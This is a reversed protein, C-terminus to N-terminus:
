ASSTLPLANGWLTWALCALCCCLVQVEKAAGAIAKAKEHSASCEHGGVYHGVCINSHLPLPTWGGFHSTKKVRLAYIVLNPM